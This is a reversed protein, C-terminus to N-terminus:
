RKFSLTLIGNKLLGFGNFVIEENKVDSFLFDIEKTINSALEGCYDALADLRGPGELTPPNFRTKFMHIQPKIDEKYNVFYNRKYAKSERFVRIVLPISLMKFPANDINSNENVIRQAELCLSIPVLDDFVEELSLSEKWHKVNDAIETHTM